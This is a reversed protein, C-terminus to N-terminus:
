LGLGQRNNSNALPVWYSVPFSDRNLGLASVARDSTWSCSSNGFYKVSKVANDNVINSMCWQYWRIDCREVVLWMNQQNSWKTTLQLWCICSPVNFGALLQRIQKLLVCDETGATHEPNVPLLHVHFEPCCRYWYHNPTFFYIFILLVLLPFIAQFHQCLMGLLGQRSFSWLGRSKSLCWAEGGQSLSDTHKVAEAHKACVVPGLISSMSPLSPFDFMLSLISTLM